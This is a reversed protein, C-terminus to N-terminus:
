VAAAVVASHISSWVARWCGRGHSGMVTRHPSCPVPLVVSARRNERAAWLDTAQSRSVSPGALLTQVSRFKAQITSFKPSQGARQRGATKVSSGITARASRSLSPVCGVIVRLISGRGSLAMLQM